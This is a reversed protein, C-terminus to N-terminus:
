TDISVTLLPDPYAALSVPKARLFPDSQNRVQGSVRGASDQRALGPGTVTLGHTKSPKAVGTPELTRNQMEPKEIWPQM